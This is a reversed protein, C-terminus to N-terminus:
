GGVRTVSVNLRAPLTETVGLLLNVESTVRSPFTEVTNEV